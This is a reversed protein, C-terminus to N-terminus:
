GCLADLMKLAERAESPLVTTKGASNQLRVKNRYCEKSNVDKMDILSIYGEYETLSRYEELLPDGYRLDEFAPLEISNLRQFLFDKYQSLLLLRDQTNATRLIKSQVSAAMSKTQLDQFASASTVFLVSAIFM